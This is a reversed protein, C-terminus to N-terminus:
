SINKARRFNANANTIKVTVYIDGTYSAGSASDTFITISQSTTRVVAKGSATLDVIEGISTGSTPVVILHPGWIGKYSALYALLSITQLTKGLGM